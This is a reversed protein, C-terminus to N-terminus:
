KSFDLINIMYGYQKGVFMHGGYKAIINLEYFDDPDFYKEEKLNIKDSQIELVSMYHISDLNLLLRKSSLMILSFEDRGFRLKHLIKKTNIDILVFKYNKHLIIKDDVLIMKNGNQYDGLKIQNNEKNSINYLSLFANYGKIIGDKKYYIAVKNEDIACIELLTLGYHIYDLDFKLISNYYEIKGKDFLYFIADDNSNTIFLIKSNSLKIMKSYEYNYIKIKYLFKEKIELTEIQKKGLVIIRKKDMQIIDLIEEIDLDYIIECIIEKDKKNINYVNINSKNSDKDIIYCLLRGDNLVMLKEISKSIGFSKIIKLKELSFDNFDGSPNFDITIHYGKKVSCDYTEKQTRKDRLDKKDSIKMILNFKTNIDAEEVIDNLNFVLSQGCGHIKNINRLILFNKNKNEFNNVINTYKNLFADINQLTNNLKQIIENM